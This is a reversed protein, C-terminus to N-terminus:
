KGVGSGYYGGLIICDLDDLLLSLLSYVTKDVFRNLVTSIGSLGGVYDPKLKFWSEKRENPIYFSDVNKIM